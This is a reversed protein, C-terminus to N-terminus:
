GVVDGAIANQAFFHGIELDPLTLADHDMFILKVRWQGEVWVSWVLMAGWLRSVVRSVAFGWCRGGCRRSRERVLCFSRIRGSAIRLCRLRRMWMGGYNKFQSRLRFTFVSCKTLCRIPLSNRM